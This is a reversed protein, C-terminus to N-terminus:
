PSMFKRMLVGQQDFIFKGVDYRLIKKGDGLSFPKVEGLLAKVEGETSVGIQLASLQQVTVPNAKAVQSLSHDPAIPAGKASDTVPASSPMAGPLRPGPAEMCGALVLVLLASIYKFPRPNM